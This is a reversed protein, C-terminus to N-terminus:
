AVIKIAYMVIIRVKWAFKMKRSQITFIACLLTWHNKVNVDIHKEYDTAFIEYIFFREM